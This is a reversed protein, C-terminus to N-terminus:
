NLPYVRIEEVVDLDVIKWYKEIPSISIVAEYRNTRLHQHGWHGVTGTATWTTRLPTFDTEEEMVEVTDIQIKRIKAQAGGAQEITMSKLYDLYITNLVDGEASVALKDYVMERENFEFAKYTNNLLSHVLLFANRQGLNNTKSIPLRIDVNILITLGASIFIVFYLGWRRKSKRRDRIIAFVLLGLLTISLYPLKLRIPSIQTHYVTPSKYNKLYNNWVLIPDAPSIDYPLPGAPDTMLCPIQQIKDNWLEWHVEVKQPIEEIPYSLIIGAIAANYDLDKNETLIQIGSMSVEVFRIRDLYARPRQGDISLPNKQILFDAVTDLVSQLDAAMIKDGANYGLDLWDELDKVRVLVEHRVEFPEVYLFSMMSSKHHRRLNNNDFQSYWPDEWNLNLGEQQSLFRLDNIPLNNHYAVFGINALTARGNPLIPPRFTMYSPKKTKFDMELYLIEKSIKTNLTDVKGTYLSSRYTRPTIRMQNLEGRLLRGDAKIQFIEEYFRKIESPSLSEWTNGDTEKTLWPFFHELDSRGIEFNVRINNETIYVEIITECQDARILSILDAKATWMYLCLGITLLISRLM